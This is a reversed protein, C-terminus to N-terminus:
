KSCSQTQTNFPLGNICISCIFTLPEYKSCNPVLYTSNLCISTGTVSTVPSFVSECTKCPGLTKTSLDISTYDLCYNVIGYLACQNSIGNVIVAVGPGPPINNDCYDLALKCYSGQGGAAVNCTVCTLQTTSLTIRTYLDCHKFIAYPFTQLKTCGQGSVAVTGMFPITIADPACTKCFYPTTSIM